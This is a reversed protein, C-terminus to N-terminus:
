QKITNEAILTSVLYATIIAVIIPAIISWFVRAKWGHRNDLIFQRKLQLQSKEDDLAKIDQVEIVADIDESYNETANHIRAPKEVEIELLREEIDKLSSPGTYKFAKEEKKNPTTM